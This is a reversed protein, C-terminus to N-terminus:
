GGRVVQPESLGCLWPPISACPVACQFTRRRSRPSRRCWPRPASRWRISHVSKWSWAPSFYSCSVRRWCCGAALGAATIAAGERLLRDVVRRNTAGLALRIGIERTRRAVLYARLGYVGLHNHGRIWPTFPYWSPLFCITALCSEDATPRGPQWARCRACPCLADRHRRRVRCCRDGEAGLVACPDGYRRRWEAAPLRRRRVGRWGIPGFNDHAFNGKGM